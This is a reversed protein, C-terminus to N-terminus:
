PGFGAHIHDTHDAMAFAPGPGDLDYGYILETPKVGDPLTALIRGVESCPSTPSMDTCSVGNVAAIDFARGYYHNSVNGSATLMSHDSRLSSVLLSYRQTLLALLNIVRADIVGSQIDNAATPNLIQLNDWNIETPTEATPQSHYAIKWSTKATDCNGAIVKSERVAAEVYWSAHNHSFLGQKISRHAWLMRAFTAIGDWADDRLVLGDGNGDLGYRKWQSPSLGMPGTKKMQKRTMGRGYDSEIRAVAAMTWIGKQGLGFRSAATEFARLYYDPIELARRRAPKCVFTKLGKDAVTTGGNSKLAGYCAAKELVDKVYWDARNYAFIADYWEGPAGSASLYNAASHIADRANYPDAKGDGDGDVGYAGWTPPMFQMWGIAGASSTVENLRGFDTEIKNIAALIQPGRGGLNYKRAAKIYIPILNRPPGASGDCAPVPASSGSLGLNPDVTISAPPATPVIEKPVEQKPRPKQGTDKGPQKDSAGQDGKDPRAPAPRGNGNGGPAPKTGPNKPVPKPALPGTPGTPGLGGAGPQPSTAAPEDTIPTNGNAQAAHGTALMAGVSITALATRVRGM